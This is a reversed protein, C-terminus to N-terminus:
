DTTVRLNMTGLGQIIDLSLLRVTVVEENREVKRGIITKKLIKHSVHLDANAVVLIMLYLTDTSSMLARYSIGVSVDAANKELTHLYTVVKGNNVLNHDADKRNSRSTKFSSTIQLHLRYLFFVPSIFLLYVNSVKISFQQTQHLSINTSFLRLQIAWM